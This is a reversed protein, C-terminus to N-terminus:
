RSIWKPNRARFACFEFRAQLLLEVRVIDTLRYRNVITIKVRQALDGSVFLDGNINTNYLAGCIAAAM